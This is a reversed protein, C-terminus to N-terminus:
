DLIPHLFFTPIAGMHVSSLGSFHSKTGLEAQQRVKGEYQPQNMKTDIEDQKDKMSKAEAINLLYYVGAIIGGVACVVGLLFGIFIRPSTAALGLAVAAVLVGVATFTSGKGVESKTPASSDALPAPSASGPRSTDM